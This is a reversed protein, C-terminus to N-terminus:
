SVDLMGEVYNKGTKHDWKSSKDMSVDKSNCNPCYQSYFLELDDTNYGFTGTGYVM